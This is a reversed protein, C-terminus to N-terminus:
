SSSSGCSKAANYTNIFAIYLIYVAKAYGIATCGATTINATNDANVVTIHVTAIVFTDDATFIIDTTNNTLISTFIFVIFPITACYFVNNICCTYSTAAIINAAQNTSIGATYGISTVVASNGASIINTTQNAIISVFM